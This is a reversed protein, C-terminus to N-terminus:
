TGAGGMVLAPREDLVEAVAAGIVAASVPEAPEGYPRLPILPADVPRPTPLIRIRGQRIAERISTM